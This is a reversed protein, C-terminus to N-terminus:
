ANRAMIAARMSSLAENWTKRDKPGLPRKPQVQVSACAESAAKTAAEWIVRCVPENTLQHRQGAYWQEFTMASGERKEGAVHV